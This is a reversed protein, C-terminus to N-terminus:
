VTTAPTLDADSKADGSVAAALARAEEEGLDRSAKGRNIELAYGRNFNTGVLSSLLIGNQDEDLLCLSYSQQGAVGDFADYRVLGVRKFHSRGDAIVGDLTTRLADIDRANADVSRLLSSLSDSGGESDTLWPFRRDVRRM